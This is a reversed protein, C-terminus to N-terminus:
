SDGWMTHEYQKKYIELEAKIKKNEEELEEIHKWDAKQEIDNNKIIVKLKDNEAKLKKNEAVIEKIWKCAKFYCEELAEYSMKFKGSAVDEITADSNIFEKVWKENHTSM